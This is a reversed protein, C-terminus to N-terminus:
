RAGPAAGEGASPAANATGERVIANNRFFVLPGKDSGVVLDLDGDGDLDVLAPHSGAPMRLGALWATNTKWGSSFLPSTGTPELVVIPGKDTGIFLDMRRTLTVDAATPSTNVGLDIGLFRREALEFDLGAGAKRRFRQLGGRLSGMLLQTGTSDLVIGVPVANKGARVSKLADERYVFSPQKATGVNEFFFVQGDETGVLLDPKGDGTLDVFAPAANRGFRYGAFESTVLQWKPNEAPGLNRFYLLKGEANGV